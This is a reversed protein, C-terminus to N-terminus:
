ADIKRSANKYSWWEDLRKDHAEYPSLGELLKDFDNKVEGKKSILGAEQLHARQEVRQDPTLEDVKVSIPKALTNKFNRCDQRTIEAVPRNDLFQALLRLAELHMQKTKLAWSEKRDQAFEEIVQGVTPSPKQYRDSTVAAAFKLRSSPLHGEDDPLVPLIHELNLHRQHRLQAFESEIKARLSGALTKALRSDNTGLSHHIEGNGITSRLDKPVRIRFHYKGNRKILYAHTM